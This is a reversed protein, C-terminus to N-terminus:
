KKFCDSFSEAFLEYEGSWGLDGASVLYVCEDEERKNFIYFNGNGDMAFPLAYPMYRAINYTDYYEIVEAASLMQFERNGKAFDGGNSERLFSIYDEPLSIDLFGVTKLWNQLETLQEESLPPNAAAHDFIKLM